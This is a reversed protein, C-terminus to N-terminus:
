KCSGWRDNELHYVGSVNLIRDVQGSLIGVRFTFLIWVSFLCISVLIAVALHTKLKRLSPSIVAYSLLVFYIIGMIYKTLLGLGIACGLAAALRYSPKRLLRLSLLLALSFFFVLQIDMLAASGLRITLPFFLFLLSAILGTERDYLERGLLYTIWLTAILFLVSVLRLFLLNDGLLDITLGFVFPILPPHQYRLNPMNLFATAVGHLGEAAIIKAAKFLIKENPWL